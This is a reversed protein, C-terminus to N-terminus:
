PCSPSWGGRGLQSLAAGKCFWDRLPEMSHLSCGRPIQDEPPTKPQNTRPPTSREDNPIRERGENSNGGLPIRERQLTDYDHYDVGGGFDPSERSRDREITERVPSERERSEPTGPTRSADRSMVPVSSRRVEAPNGVNANLPTEDVWFKAFRAGTSPDVDLVALRGDVEELQETSLLSRM